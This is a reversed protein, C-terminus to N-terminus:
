TEKEQLTLGRIQELLKKADYDRFEQNLCLSKAIPNVLKLTAMLHEFESSQITRAIEELTAATITTNKSHKFDITKPRLLISNTVYMMVAFTSSCLVLISYGLARVLTWWRKGYRKQSHFNARMAAKEANSATSWEHHTHDLINDIMTSIYGRGIRTRAKSEIANTSKRDQCSKEFELYLLVMAMRSRIADDNMRSDLFCVFSYAKHLKEHEHPTETTNVLTENEWLGERCWRSLRTELFELHNPRICMTAMNALWLADSQSPPSNGTHQLAERASIVERSDEPTSSEIDSELEQPPGNDSVSLRRTLMGTRRQVRSHHAAKRVPSRRMNFKPSGDAVSDSRCARDASANIPRGIAFQDYGHSSDGEVLIAISSARTIDYNPMQADSWQTGEFDAKHMTNTDDMQVKVVSVPRVQTMNPAACSNCETPEMLSETDLGSYDYPGLYTATSLNALEATEAPDLAPTGIPM